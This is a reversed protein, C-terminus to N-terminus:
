PKKVNIIRSIVASVRIWNASQTTNRDAHYIKPFQPNAPTDLSISLRVVSLRLFQPRPNLGLLIANDPRRSVDPHPFRELIRRVLGNWSLSTM